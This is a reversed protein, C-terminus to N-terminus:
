ILDKEYHIKYLHSFNGEVKLEQSIEIDAIILVKNGVALVPVRDRLRSPIKKDILYEKLKKPSSSGFPTFEDGTQRFRWVADKPMKDADVVHCHPKIENFVKSSVVRITGYGEFYIKGKQFNKASEKKKEGKPVISLYDYEKHCRVDFPLDISDGNNGQIAFERIM